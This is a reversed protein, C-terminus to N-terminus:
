PRGFFNNLKALPAAADNLNKIAENFLEIDLAAFSEVTTTMAGIATNMAAIDLSSLQALADNVTILSASAQALFGDASGIFASFDLSNVTDLAAQASRITRVLPAGLAVAATLLVALLCAMLAMTVRATFLRKKELKRQEATHLLLQRMCDQMALVDPEQQDTVTALNNEEM